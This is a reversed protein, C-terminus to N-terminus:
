VGDMHCLDNIIIDRGVYDMYVILDSSSFPGIYNHTSYNCIHTSDNCIWVIETQRTLWSGAYVPKM